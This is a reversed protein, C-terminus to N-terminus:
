FLLYYKGQGNQVSRYGSLRVHHLFVAFSSRTWRFWFIEDDRNGYGSGVEPLGTMEM